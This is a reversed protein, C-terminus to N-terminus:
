VVGCWVVGGAGDVRKVNAEEDAVRAKTYQRNM